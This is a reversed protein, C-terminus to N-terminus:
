KESSSTDCFYVWQKWSKSKTCHWLTTLQALLLCTIRRYEQMDFMYTSRRETVAQRGWNKNWHSWTKWRRTKSCTFLISGLSGIVSRGLIIPTYLWRRFALYKPEMFGNQSPSGPDRPVILMLLRLRIGFRSYWRYGLPCWTTDSDQTRASEFDWDQRLLLFPPCFNDSTEAPKRHFRPGKASM